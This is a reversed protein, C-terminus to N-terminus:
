GFSHMVHSDNCALLYELGQNLEHLVLVCRQNQDVKLVIQDRRITNNVLSALACCVQDFDYGARLRHQLTCSLDAYTDEENAHQSFGAMSAFRRRGESPQNGLAPVRFLCNGRYFSRPAAFDGCFKSRAFALMDDTLPPRAGKEVGIQIFQEFRLINLCDNQDTNGRMPTDFRCRPVRLEPVIVDHDQFIGDASVVFREM